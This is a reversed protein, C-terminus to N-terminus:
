RRPGIGLSSPRAPTAGVAPRRRPPEPSPSARGRHREASLLPRRPIPRGSGRVSPRPKDRGRRACRQDADANRRRARFCREQLLRLLKPQLAAPLDGVEDLFLTGGEAAAVRGQTERVAGTFAGRAHGFLESELLEASLSPCHVTVFPGAARPSRSHIARALVGKGTGSEGRLLITADSDAARFVLDLAKQMAPEITHLDAEPVAAQVQEELDAVRTRLQQLTEWRRFLARLQDPTFPKPLYDFVGRRMAEVASSITAYATMAVIPWTPRKGCCRPCSISGRNADWAFISSPWTSANHVRVRHAGSRGTGAEAVTHGMSELTIRLTRRLSAEDDILM